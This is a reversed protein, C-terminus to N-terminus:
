ADQVKIPVFLIEVNLWVAESHEFGQHEATACINGRVVSRRQAM